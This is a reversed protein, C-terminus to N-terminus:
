NLKFISIIHSHKLRFIIRSRTHMIKITIKNIKRLNIHHSTHTKHAIEYILDDKYIEFLFFLRTMRDNISCTGNNHHIIILFWLFTLTLFYCIYLKRVLDCLLFFRLLFIDYCLHKNYIIIIIIIIIIIAFTTLRTLHTCVARVPEYIFLCLLLLFLCFYSLTHGAIM